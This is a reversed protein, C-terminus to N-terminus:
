KQLENIFISLEPEAGGPTAGAQRSQRPLLSVLQQEIRRLVLAQPVDGAIINRLESLTATRIGPQQLILSALENGAKELILKEGMTLRTEPLSSMKELVPIAQRMAPYVQKAASETLRNDPNLIGELEGTLRKEAPKLPTPKFGTREVYVRSKQQLSKILELAKYEFPLAEEPRLTRLRLEAEWMQSLAAKLQAKMTEDFFTETDAVDHRHEYARLMDGTEGFLTAQGVNTNHNHLQELM